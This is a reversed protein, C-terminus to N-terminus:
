TVDDPNNLRILAAAKALVSPDVVLPTLGRAQREAAVREIRATWDEDVRPSM